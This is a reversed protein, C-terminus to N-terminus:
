KKTTSELITSLQSLDLSTYEQLNFHAIIEDSLQGGLPLPFGDKNKAEISFGAGVFLNIGSTLYQLLTNENDIRM